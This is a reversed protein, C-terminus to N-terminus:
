YGLLFSFLTLYPHAPLQPFVYSPFVYSGPRASDQFTQPPPSQISVRPFCSTPSGLCALHSADKNIGSRLKRYKGM